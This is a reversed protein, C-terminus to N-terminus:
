EMRTEWNVVVLNKNKIMIKQKGNEFDKEKYETENRKKPTHTRKQSM